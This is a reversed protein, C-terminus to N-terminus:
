DEIWFTEFVFIWCISSLLELSTTRWYSTRIPSFIILDSTLCKMLVLVALSLILLFVMLFLSVTGSTMLVSNEELRKKSNLTKIIEHWDLMLETSFSRFHDFKSNTMRKGTPLALKYTQSWKPGFWQRMQMSHIIENTIFKNCITLQLIM